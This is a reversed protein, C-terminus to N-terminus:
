QTIEYYIENSIEDTTSKICFAKILFDINYNFLSEDDLIKDEILKNLLDKKSIRNFINVINLIERRIPHNVAKLYLEHLYRTGEVSKSYEEMSKYNKFDFEDPM